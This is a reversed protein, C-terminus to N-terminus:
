SVPALPMFTFQNKKKNYHLKHWDHRGQLSAMEEESLDISQVVPNDRSIVKIVAVQDEADTILTVTGDQHIEARHRM